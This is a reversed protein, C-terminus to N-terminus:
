IQVHYTRYLKLENIGGSSGSLAGFLGGGSSEKVSRLKKNSKLLDLVKKEGKKVEAIATYTNLLEDIKLELVPKTKKTIRKDYIEYKANKSLPENSTVIVKKVKGKKEEEVGLIRLETNNILGRVKEIGIQQNDFFYGSKRDILQRNEHEEIEVEQDKYKITSSMFRAKENPKEGFLKAWSAKYKEPNSLGVFITNTSKINDINLEIEEKESKAPSYISKSMGQNISETVADNAIVRVDKYGLLSAQHMFEIHLRDLDSYTHTPDYFFVFAMDNTEKTKFKSLNSQDIAVADAIYLEAGSKILPLLEKEGRKIGVISEDEDFYCTGVERYIREGEYDIAEQIGYYFTGYKTIDVDACKEIKVKKVKDKKQKAIGVIKAETALNEIVLLKMANGLREKLTLVNAARGEQVIDDNNFIINEEIRKREARDNTWSNAVEEVDFEHGLEGFLIFLDIISGSERETMRAFLKIEDSVIIGAVKRRTVTKKGRADSTEKKRTIKFIGQDLSEKSEWLELIIDATGDAAKSIVNYEACGGSQEFIIAQVIDRLKYVENESNVNTIIDIKIEQSILTPISFLVIALIQIINTKM